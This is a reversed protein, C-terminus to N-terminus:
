LLSTDTFYGSKVKLGDKIKSYIKEFGYNESAYHTLVIVAMGRQTLALIEHHKMDASVFVDAQGAAAFNINHEDCGAGCFSAVRKVQKDEEGYSLLRETSFEKKVKQVYDKFRTPTVSYVRGYGGNSLPASLEAKEGGLGKCLFYDIGQPAADFNLHMSIVSIGEKMCEALTQAQPNDTLDFRSIGGFIAPHHTVILNYGQAKAKEVAKSTLDLTFLAGTVESGCNIIIGSNDYMKYKGCFEDSLSVPAVEKELLSFIDEVKM